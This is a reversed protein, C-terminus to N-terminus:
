RRFANEAFGSQSKSAQQPDSGQESRAPKDAFPVSSKYGYSRSLAPQYEQAPFVFITSTQPLQRLLASGTDRSLVQSLITANLDYRIHSGQESAM